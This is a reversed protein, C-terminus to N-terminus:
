ICLAQMVIVLSIAACNISKIINIWIRQIEKKLGSMNVEDVM